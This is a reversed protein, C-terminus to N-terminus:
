HIRAVVSGIDFDEGAQLRDLAPRPHVGVGRARVMQRLFHDVVRDVFGQGPMRLLDVHHQMGIAAALDAVVATAHRDVDVRFLLNGADFQDQGAQMRAALEAVLVVGERAAQV